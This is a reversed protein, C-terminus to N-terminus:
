EDGNKDFNRILVDLDLVDVSLDCNFDVGENWHPDGPAADFAQILRDLDLVDVSNDDNADGGLLAITVGSADGNRVDVAVTRALWKRGKIWVQYQGPPLQNIEFSGEAGLAVQRAFPFIGEVPRFAFTMSQGQPQACNELLLKGTLKSPRVRKAVFIGNANGLHPGTTGYQGGFQTPDSINESYWNDEGNRFDLAVVSVFYLDNISGHLTLNRLHLTAGFYAQDGDDYELNDISMWGDLVEQTPNLQAVTFQWLQGQQFNQAPLPRPTIGLLLLLLVALLSRM